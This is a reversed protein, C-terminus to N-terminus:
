TCRLEVTGLGTFVARVQTGATVAVARTCSGPLVVHGPELGSGDLAHLARVLWAVAEAPDGLVAAGVGKERLEGDVHLEVEVAALDLGTVDIPEAGLVTGAGSANDAVTDLLGIRWDRIRSDIVELSPLVHATAALVQAAHVDPGSLASGLVFAIEPEVRPALLRSVDLEGGSALVDAAFLHGLDPSDVGLQEQMALSTLGVKHGVVREGAALRRRVGELQVAYASSLDLGPHTGSLPEVPECTTRARDLADALSAVGATTDAPM